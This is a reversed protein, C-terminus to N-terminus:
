LSRRERRSSWKQVESTAARHRSSAPSACAPSTPRDGYVLAPDECVRPDMGTDFLVLGQEHEIVYAPLPIEVTGEAGVVLHQADITMKPSDLGWMRINTSRATHAATARASTELM